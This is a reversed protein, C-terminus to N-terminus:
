ELEPVRGGPLRLIWVPKGIVDGAYVFGFSRSDGSHARNDGLVFYASDPVVIPGWADGTPRYRHNRVAHVVYSYHWDGPAGTDRLSVPGQALYPERVMHSNVFLRGADMSLTDGSLAVVRKIRQMGGASLAFVLLDGRAIRGEASSNREMRGFAARDAVLLDGHSLTPEMSSGYVRYLGVGEGQFIGALLGGVLGAAVWLVM